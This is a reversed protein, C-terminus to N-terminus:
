WETSWSREAVELVAERDHLLDVPRKGELSQLPSLLWEIVQPPQWGLEAARLILDPVAPYVEATASEVQFGPYLLRSGRRVWLLRGSQTRKAVMSAPDKARSGLRRGMQTASHLGFERDVEDWFRETATLARALQPSVPPLTEVASRWEALLDVTQLAREYEAAREPHSELLDLVRM